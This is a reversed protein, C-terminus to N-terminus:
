IMLTPPSADAGDDVNTESGADCESEHGALSEMCSACRVDVPRVITELWGGILRGAVTRAPLEVELGAHETLDNGCRLCCQVPLGTQEEEYYIRIMALQTM